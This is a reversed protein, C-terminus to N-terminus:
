MSAKAIETVSDRDGPKIWRAIGRGYNNFAVDVLQPIEAEKLGLKGFTANLGIDALLTQLLDPVKAAKEVPKLSHVDPSLIEAVRALRQEGEPLTWQVTPILCAACSEGHPTDKLAGLAQGLSHPIGVGISALSLGALYCSEAMGTRAALNRGDNCATRIHRVFLEMARLGVAETWGNSQTGMFGEFAHLFTDVGTSATLARPKTHHLSPDVIAVAPYCWQNKITAKLKLDQNSLVAFPTIEAGTGASTPVAVLPLGPAQPDHHQFGARATYDWSQGGHQAVLSVAKAADITSGGGVAIVMDCGQQVALKAAADCTAARPNPVIDYWKTAQVGKANLLQDLQEELPSGKLFPDLMAFANRGLQLAKEGILDFSGIGFNLNTPLTVSYQQQM